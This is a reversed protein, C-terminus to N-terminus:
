INDIFNTYKSLLTYFKSTIIKYTNSYLIIIFKGNSIQGLDKFM